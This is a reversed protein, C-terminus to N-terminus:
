IAEHNTVLAQEIYSRVVATHNSKVLALKTEVYPSINVLRQPPVAILLQINLENYYTMMAEIRSEDMNNFAEDFMVVCASSRNKRSAELLQQFSSAIIVYFPTQTEGGSKEKNVKSFYYTENNKNTIEIDYDMYKRYDTYDSITRVQAESKDESTLTEFLSKLLFQNEDTLSEVLLSRSEFDESSQLIKYYDKFDKKSSEKYTFKYVEKDSGFPKTKLTKNLLHFNEKATLIKERLKSLFDEQFTKECKKLAIAAQDEYEIINRAKITFLVNLYEELNKINPILQGNDYKQTYSLMLDKVDLELSNLNITVKQIRSQVDTLMKNYNRKHSEYLKNKAEQIEQQHNIMDPLDKFKIYADNLEKDLQVKEEAINKNKEELSGQAKNLQDNQSQLRDREMKNQNILGEIELWSDDKKLLILEDNIKRIQSEIHDKNFFHNPMNLLTRIESQNSHHLKNKLSNIFNNKSSIIVNLENDKLKANELQKQIAQQGIFPSKWIDPNIQRATNNKYTMGSSTISQSYLKLDEIKDVCIVKGLIMNITEKANENLGIVKTALSNELVDHKKLKNTNILGVGHIKKNFKYNEYIELAKDFYQPEVIIDFRQTNLYGEIANRWHNNEPTIELLECLPKVDVSEKNFLKVLEEKLINLLSEVHQNYTFRNKELNQINITLERKENNLSLLEKNESAIEISLENKRSELAKDYLSISKSLEEYSDANLLDKVDFEIDIIKSLQTEKNLIHQVDNIKRITNNLYNKDNSLQLELNNIRSLVDNKQLENLNNEVFSLQSKVKLIEELIDNLKKKNNELEIEDKEIAKQISEYKLDGSLYELVELKIQSEKYQQALEEIPFLFKLKEKEIKLLKSIERYSHINIQLSEIDVKDEPLLFDYVFQNVENIPNFALAKPLLEFYKNNSLGLTSKIMNKFERKTEFKNIHKNLSEITQKFYNFGLVEDNNIYYEDILESDIIHYFTGYNKRNSFPLEFVVGIVFYKNSTQDFFELAIHSIISDQDRIFPKGEIGTKGKIYSEVTRNTNSNAAQNFKGSAGGLVYNIADLLTSKGHGNEGTIVTNKNIQITHNDFIHWNILKIKTMTKLSTVEMILHM